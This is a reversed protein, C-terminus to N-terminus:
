GNFSIKDGVKVSGELAGSALEVAYLSKLVLPSFRWATMKERVYVVNFNKDAFIVDIPFRMFCTHIQTCPKLVIGGGKELGRSSLLGVLRGWFTDKMVLKDAILKGTTENICKM